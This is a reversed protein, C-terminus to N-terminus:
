GVAAVIAQDSDFIADNPKSKAVERVIDPLQSRIWRQDAEDLPAQAQALMALREIVDPSIGVLGSDGLECVFRQAVAGIPGGQARYRQLEGM